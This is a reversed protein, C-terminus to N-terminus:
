EEKPSSIVHLWRRSTVVTKRELNFLFVSDLHGGNDIDLRDVEGVVILPAEDALGFRKSWGSKRWDGPSWFPTTQPSVRRSRVAPVVLCGIKVQKGRQDECYMCGCDELHNM